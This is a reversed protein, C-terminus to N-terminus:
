FDYSETLENIHFFYFHEIIIVEYFKSVGLSTLKTSLSTWICFHKTVKQRRKQDISGVTEPIYIINLSNIECMIM